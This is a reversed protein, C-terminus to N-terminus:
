LLKCFCQNCGFATRPSGYGQIEHRFDSRWQSGPCAFRKGSSKWLPYLRFQKGIGLLEKRLPFDQWVGRRAAAEEFSVGCTQLHQPICYV